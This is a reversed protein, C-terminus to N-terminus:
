KKILTAKKIVVPKVPRSNERGDQVTKAGVIKKVVDMGEVVQGFATYQNDLFPADGDMIFFQSGASNPDSSRAMSLIGSVHKVDNFEAKIQYGPGGMGDNGPDKDKTNPDGGQIMFGPIVRHFYTGDYFGKKVLDKFNKVHGPAKDNFFKLVIKGETTELVAHEEDATTGAVSAQEGGITEPVAEKDDEAAAPVAAVDESASVKSNDLDSVTASESCGALGSTLSFAILAFM